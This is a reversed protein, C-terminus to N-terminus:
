APFTRMPIRLSFYAHGSAALTWNSIEGEVAVAGLQTEIARRIARTLETVSLPRPPQATPLSRLAM